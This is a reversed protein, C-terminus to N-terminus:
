IVIVNNNSEKSLCNILIESAELSSFNGLAEVAVLRMEIDNDNLKSYKGLIPIIEKDGVKGLTYIIMRKVEFNDEILLRNKLAINVKNKDRTRSLKLAAKERTDADKENLEEVLKNIKKNKM